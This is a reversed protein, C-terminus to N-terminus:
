KLRGPPRWRTDIDHIAKNMINRGEKNEILKNPILIKALIKYFNKMHVPHTRNTHIAHNILDYVNSRKLLKGKYCIEGKKNFKINDNKRLLKLLELGKNKKILSLQPFKQPIIMM